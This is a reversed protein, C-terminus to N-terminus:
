FCFSSVMRTEKGFNSVCNRSGGQNIDVVVRKEYKTRPKIIETIVAIMRILLQVM